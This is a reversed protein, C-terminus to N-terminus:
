PGVPFAIPRVPLLTVPTGKFLGALFEDDIHGPLGPLVTKPDRSTKMSRRVTHAPVPLDGDLSSRAFMSSGSILLPSPRSWRAYATARTAACGKVTEFLGRVRNIGM